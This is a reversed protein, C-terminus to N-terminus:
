ESKICNTEVFNDVFELADKETVKGQKKVLIKGHEVFAIIANMVIDKLKEKYLEHLAARPDDSEQMIKKIYEKKVELQKKTQKPM